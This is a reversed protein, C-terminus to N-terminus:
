DNRSLRDFRDGAAAAELSDMCSLLAELLRRREEPSLGALMTEEVDVVTGQAESSLDRGKETLYAQLVRGHEPHPRREVLGAAELNTLIGNM